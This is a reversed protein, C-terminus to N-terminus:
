HRSLRRTKLERAHALASQLSVLGRSGILSKILKRLSLWVILHVREARNLDRAQCAESYHAIVTSWSGPHNSVGGASFVGIPQRLYKNPLNRFANRLLKTDAAIHMKSDYRNNIYWERPVLISQHSPLIGRRLNENTPTPAKCSILNGDIEYVHDGYLIHTSVIDENEKVAQCFADANHLRDGSNIFIIASGQSLDIAKNMADYKGADKGARYQSVFKTYNSIISGCRNDSSGDIVVTETIDFDLYKFSDLTKALESPNNYCITAISILPTNAM